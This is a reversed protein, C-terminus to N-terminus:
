DGGHGPKISNQSEEAPSVMKATFPLETSKSFMSVTKDPSEFSTCLSTDVTKCERGLVCMCVTNLQKRNVPLKMQLHNKCDALLEMMQAGPGEGGVEGMTVVM